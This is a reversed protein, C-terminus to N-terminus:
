RHFLFRSVDPDELKERIRPTYEVYEPMAMLADGASFGWKVLVPEMDFEGLRQRQLGLEIRMVPSIELSSALLAEQIPEHRIATYLIDKDLHTQVRLRAPLEAKYKLFREWTNRSAMLNKAKLANFSNHRITSIHVIWYCYAFGSYGSAQIRDNLESWIPENPPPTYLGGSLYYISEWLDLRPIGPFSPGAKASM